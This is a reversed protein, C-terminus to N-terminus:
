GPVVTNHYTPNGLIKKGEIQVISGITQIKKWPKKKPTAELFFDVAKNVELHTESHYDHVFLKECVSSCILMDFLTPMVDHDGDIFCFDYERQMIFSAIERSLAKMHIINRDFGEEYIAKYFVEGPFPKSRDIYFWPDVCILKFDDKFKARLGRAIALSSKGYLSGIELICPMKASRAAENLAKEEVDSLWGPVNM